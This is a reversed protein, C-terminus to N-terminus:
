PLTVLGNRLATVLAQLSSKAGLKELIKHVHSRYTSMTIGLLKWTEQASLGDALARLVEMERPSLDFAGPSPAPRM